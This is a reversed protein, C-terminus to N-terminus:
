WSSPSEADILSTASTGFFPQPGVTGLRLSAPDITVFRRELRRSLPPPLAVRRVGPGELVRGRVSDDPAPGGVSGASLPAGPTAM